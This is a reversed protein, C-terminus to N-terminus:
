DIAEERAKLAAERATLEEEWASYKDQVAIEESTFVLNKNYVATVFLAAVVVCLAIIVVTMRKTKIRYYDAVTKLKKERDRSSNIDRNLQRIKDGPKDDEASDEPISDNVDASFENANTDNELATEDGTQTQAPSEVLVPANIAKLEAEDIIGAAVIRDYLTKLFSLGVITHMTQRELLKFYVKLAIEPNNIDMRSVICEITDEEHKADAYEGASNFHFGGVTMNDWM